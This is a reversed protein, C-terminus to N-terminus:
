EPVGFGRKIAPPILRRDFPRVPAAAAGGPGTQTGFIQARGISLLYRDLSASAIWLATERGKSVALTALNHALLYDDPREGHQFIFAARELDLGTRVEGAEIM